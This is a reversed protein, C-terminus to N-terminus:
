FNYYFDEAEKLIKRQAKVCEIPYKGVSTEGSLMVGTAGDIVANAVDSAEARTPISNYIMSEMMQTAVFVEANYYQATKIARKQIIPVKEYGVEVGLDGRAIMIGHSFEVINKLDNIASNCEIKSIIKTPYKIKRWLDIIEKHSQVFSKAVFDIKNQNILQIDNTDKETHVNWNINVNPLNVGKNGKLSGGKLVRTVIESNKIDEVELEILGDDILIRDKKALCYFLENHPLNVRNSDGQQNNYDLTFKSGPKLLCSEEKIEGIRFKPGQLDIMIESTHESNKNIYQIDDIIKQTDEHKKSHSMNIRFINVGCDHLKNLMEYSSCSPGVTIIQKTNLTFANTLALYCLLRFM